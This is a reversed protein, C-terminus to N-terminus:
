RERGEKTQTPQADKSREKAKGKTKQTIERGEKTRTPQADKSSGKKPKGKRKEHSRKLM